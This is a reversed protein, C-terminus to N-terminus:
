RRQFIDFTVRFEGNQGGDNGLKARCERNRFGTAIHRHCHKPWGPNGACGAPHDIATANNTVSGADLDAQTVLYTGTCALTGGPAIGPGPTAPCTVTNKNDGITIASTLTINGTNTVTYDYGVSQGVTTFTGAFNTAKVMSLSPAQTPGVVTVQHTDSAPTGSGASQGSTSATNVYSGANVDSQAMTKSAALAPSGGACTTTSTGPALNDLACSFGLAADSMTLGTLTVNGRNFVEFTYNVTDGPSTFSAASPTKIVEM